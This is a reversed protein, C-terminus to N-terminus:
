VEKRVFKEFPCVGGNYTVKRCKEGCYAADPYHARLTEGVVGRYARLLQCVGGISEIYRDNAAIYEAMWPQYGRPTEGDRPEGDTPTLGGVIDPLDPFYKNRDVYRKCAAVVAEFDYHLLRERYAELRDADAYIKANPYYRRLARFIKESEQATM